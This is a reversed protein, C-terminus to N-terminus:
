IVARRTINHKIDFHSCEIVNYYQGAAGELGVDYCYRGCPLNITDKPHITFTYVGKEVTENLHTLEVLIDYESNAKNRKVGFRLTEYVNMSYPKEEEDVLEIEFSETTGRVMTLTNEDHNM